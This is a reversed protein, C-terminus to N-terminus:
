LLEWIKIAWEKQMGRLLLYIELWGSQSKKLLSYFPTCAFVERKWKYVSAAVPPTKHFFPIRLSKSFNCSFVQALTKKLYIQLAWVQFKNLFLGQRLHKGTFKAFNKLIGKKCFVETLNRHLSLDGERQVFNPLRYEWDKWSHVAFTLFIKRGTSPSSTYRSESIAKKYTTALYRM